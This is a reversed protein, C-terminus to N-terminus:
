DVVEFKPLKTTKPLYGFNYVINGILEVANELLVVKTRLHGWITYSHTFTYFM